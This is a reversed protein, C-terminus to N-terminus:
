QAPIPIPKGLVAPKGVYIDQAPQTSPLGLFQKAKKNIADRSNAYIAMCVVLEFGQEVFWRPFIVLLVIRM